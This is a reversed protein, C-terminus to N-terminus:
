GRAVPISFIFTSGEGPESKLWIEGGHAEVIDKCIALGLGAGGRQSSDEDEENIQVYKQFITEHYEQPIGKGTDTVSFYLKAGKRIVRVTVSGKESTYRLANGVLNTLVWIIKNIDAKILPLDPPLSTYLKINRKEAQLKLTGLAADVLNYVNTDEWDMTIAGVEMRSLDLLNETLSLLRSCDEEIADIIERGRETLQCVQDTKLMGVGMFISTLPSRFEHSATAFYEVKLQEIEKLVTVDTLTTIIFDIQEESTFVPNIAIKYYKPWGNTNLSIISSDHSLNPPRLYLVTEDLLNIIQPIDVAEQLRLSKVENETIELIEQAKLNLSLIRQVSDTIIVAEPLQSFIRRYISM